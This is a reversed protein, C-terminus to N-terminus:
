PWIISSLLPTVKAAALPISEKVTPFFKALKNEKKRIVFVQGNKIEIKIERKIEQELKGLPGEVVLCGDKLKVVVGEPIKIPQKGIRSM